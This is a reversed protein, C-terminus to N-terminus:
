EDWAIRNVYLTSPFEFTELLWLRLFVDGADPGDTADFTHKLLLPNLSNLPRTESATGVIAAKTTDPFSGNKSGLAIGETPARVIAGGLKWWVSVRLTHGVASVGKCEARTVRLEGVNDPITSLEAPLMISLDDAINGAPPFNANIEWTPTDFVVQDAYNMLSGSHVRPETLVVNDAGLRLASAGSSADFATFCNPAPETTMSPGPNGATTSPNGATTSSGANVPDGKENSKVGGCGLLLLLSLTTVFGLCVVEFRM